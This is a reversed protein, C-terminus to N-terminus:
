DVWGRVTKYANKYVGLSNVKNEIRRMEAKDGNQYAEIYQPKYTELVYGQKWGHLTEDIEEDSGYVGMDYLSDRIDNQEYSDDDALAQEYLPKWYSTLSSRVSKRAEEETKGNAVKTAVIEEIMETAAQTNGSALADEVYKMKYISKEEDSEEEAKFEYSKIMKIIEDQSYIGRYRDRLEKVVDKYAKDEGDRLAEAGEEIKGGFYNAETQIASSVVEKSFKGESAIQDIISGYKTYDSDLLADVGERIRKDNDRLGKKLSNDINEGEYRDIVQQQGETKAEYLKDSKSKEKTFPLGRKVADAVGQAYPVNNDFINKAVNYIERGTRLLNKAPVGFLSAISGILDEVKRYGSVTDSSLQTVSEYIDTFIAFDTREVNWGSLISTIDKVFPLMNPIFLDSVLNETTSELYKELYSEDEDDDRLAYIFSKM